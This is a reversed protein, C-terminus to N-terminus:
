RRIEGIVTPEAQDQRGLQKGRIVGAGHAAKEQPAELPHAENGELLRHERSYHGLGDQQKTFTATLGVM